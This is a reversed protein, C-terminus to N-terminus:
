FADWVLTGIVLGAGRCREANPLLSRMRGPVSAVLWTWRAVVGWGARRGRKQCLLLLLELSRSASSGPGGGPGRVGARGEAARSEWVPLNSSSQEPTAGSLVFSVCLDSRVSM